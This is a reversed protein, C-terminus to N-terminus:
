DLLKMLEAMVTETVEDATAEAAPALFPHAPAAHPGGHGHEVLHAHPAENYFAGVEVAYYNGTKARKGVKLAKKLTGSRVPANQRAERLVVEAGKVLAEKARAGLMDMMDLKKIIEDMGVADVSMNIRGM